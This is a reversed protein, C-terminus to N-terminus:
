FSKFIKENKIKKKLFKIIKSYNLNQNSFNIKNYNILYFTYKYM